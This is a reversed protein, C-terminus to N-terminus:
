GDYGYTGFAVMKDGSPTTFHRSYGEFYGDDVEEYTLIDNDRRWEDFDDYYSDKEFEEVLEERYKEEMADNFKDWFIEGNQWKEYQEETCITLAHTMSSNTEFVGVRIQKKMINLEKIGNIFNKM